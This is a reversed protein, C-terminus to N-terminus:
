KYKDLIAEDDPMTKGTQAARRAARAKEAKAGEKDYKSYIRGLDGGRDLYRQVSEPRHGAELSDMTGNFKQMIQPYAALFQSQSGKGRALTELLVNEQESLTQSLGAQSRIIASAWAQVAAANKAEKTGQSWTPKLAGYGFGPIPKVKGTKEDTYDDIISQVNRAAAAMPTINDMRKSLSLLNDEIKNDLQPNTKNGAAAARIGAAQVRADAVYRASDAAMQALLQKMENASQGMREQSAIREKLLEMAQQRQAEAQEARAVRAAESESAKFAQADENDFQKNAMAGYTKALDATVPNAQGQLAHKLITERAVPQAPVNGLDPTGPMTPGQMQREPLAQPIQDIFQQRAGQRQQAVQAELAGARADTRQARLSNLVPLLMQATTPAIYRKGVTAGEATQPGQTRRLVEALKRLRAAKDTGLEPLDVKPDQLDM